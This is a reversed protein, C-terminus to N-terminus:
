HFLVMPLCLITKIRYFLVIKLRGFHNHYLVFNIKSETDITLGKGRKM